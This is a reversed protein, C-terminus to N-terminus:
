RNRIAVRNGYDGVGAPSCTGSSNFTDIHAVTGPWNPAGFGGSCAPCLDEIVRMDPNPDDNQDVMLIGDGFNLVTSNPDKALSGPPPNNNTYQNPFGTADSLIYTHQGGSDVFTGRGTIKTIPAGGTDVAFFTDIGTPYGRPAAPCVNRAGSAYSKLVQNSNSVGTGNVNTQSMFSSGLSAAKYYCVNANFDMKFVIWATQPNASCQSEFPMNYQSFRTNGIVYFAVPVMVSTNDWVAVVSGYQGVPLTTRKLPDNFSAGASATGHSGLTTTQNQQGGQITVTLQGAKNQGTLLTTATGAMLDVSVQIGPPTSTRSWTATSGSGGSGGGVFGTGESSGTSSEQAQSCSSITVTASGSYIPNNCADVTENATATLSFTSAGTAQGTITWTVNGCVDNYNTESGSVIGNNQALNFVDSYDDDWNGSIDNCNTVSGSVVPPPVPAPASAAPPQPVQPGITSAATPIASFNATQSAGVNSFTQSAPSFSDGSTDSPVVTYNGGALVGLTYNGNSDTTTSSSVTVGAATTGTLSLTVGSLADGEADLVQGSVTFPPVPEMVAVDGSIGYSFSADGGDWPNNPNVIWQGANFLGPNLYGSGGANWIGTIPQGASGFPAFYYTQPNGTWYGNCDAIGNSCDTKLNVIWQGTSPRFVGIRLVGSHDWDGVVPIDGQAGFQFVSYYNSNFNCGQGGNDSCGLTDVYWYGLGDSGIRYVGIRLKGTHDWDGVVAVDGQM